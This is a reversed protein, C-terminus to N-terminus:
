AAPQEPSAQWNLNLAADLEALRFMKRQNCLSVVKKLKM